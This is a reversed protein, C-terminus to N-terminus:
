DGHYAAARERRWYTWTVAQVQSPTWPVGLERSVIRAARRYKSSVADYAGKPRLARGREADSLVRGYAVDIAHRDVVVARPDTPDAITFYFTRVKNGHVVDAPEEGQLIRWAKRAPDGMVPMAAVFEDRTLNRLRYALRAYEVNKPWALRPSLAALVGTAQRIASEPIAAGYGGSAAVALEEAIGRARAYWEFGAARDADTAARFAATINRTLPQTSM